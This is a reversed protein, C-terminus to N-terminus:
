VIMNASASRTLNRLPNPKNKVMGSHMPWLPTATGMNGQPSIGEGIDEIISTPLDGPSHSGRDHACLGQNATCSSLYSLSTSCRRTLEPTSPISSANSDHTTPFTSDVESGKDSGSASGTILHDYNASGYLSLGPMNLKRQSMLEPRVSVEDVEGTDIGHAMQLGEVAAACQESIGRIIDTIADTKERLHRDAVDAISVHKKGRANLCPARNCAHNRSINGDDKAVGGCLENCVGSEDLAHTTRPPVSETSTGVGNQRILERQKAFSEDIDDEFLGTLDPDDEISRVIHEMHHAQGTVLSRLHLVVRQAEDR